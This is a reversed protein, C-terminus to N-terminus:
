CLGLTLQGPSVSVTQSLNSLAVGLLRIPKEPPLIGRVLDHCIREAAPKLLIPAASTHSRTIIRFDAYKVDNDKIVKMVDKATTM